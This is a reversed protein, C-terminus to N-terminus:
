NQPKPATGTKMAHRALQLYPWLEPSNPAEIKVHQELTEASWLRNRRLGGFAESLFSTPTGQVGDFNVCLVYGGAIAAAVEKKLYDELFEEGTYPGDERYRAGLDETFEEAVMYMKM